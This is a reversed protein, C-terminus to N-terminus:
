LNLATWSGRNLISCLQMWWPLTKICHVAAASLMCMRYIVPDMRQCIGVVRNVLIYADIEICKNTKNLTATVHM